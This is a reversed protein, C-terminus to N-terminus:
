TTKKSLQALVKLSEGFKHADNPHFVRPATRGVGFRTSQLHGLQVWRNVTGVTVGFTEAVQSTTLEM